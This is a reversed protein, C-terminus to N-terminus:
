KAPKGRALNQDAMGASASRIKKGLENLRKSKQNIRRGSELHGIAESLMKNNLAAEAMRILRKIHGLATTYQRVLQDAEKSGPLLAHAQQAMDADKDVEGQSWYQRALRLMDDYKINKRELTDNAESGGTDNETAAPLVKIVIQQSEGLTVNKGGINKLVTVWVKFQGTRNFIATNFSRNGGRTEYSPNQKSGFLVDPNPEWYYIFPGNAKLGGSTVVAEFGISEGQNVTAPGPTIRNLRVNVTQCLITKTASATTQDRDRIWVTATCKSCSRTNVVNAKPGNGDQACGGWHYEYGGVGGQPVATLEVIDGFATPNPKAIIEVKLLEAFKKNVALEMEGSESTVKKKGHGNRTNGTKRSPTEGKEYGLHHTLEAGLAKEVLAKKLEQFIGGEGLLDEPKEYGSLLQDLMEDTIAM